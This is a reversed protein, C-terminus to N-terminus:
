DINLFPGEIPIVHCCDHGVLLDLTYAEGTNLEGTLQLPTGEKKIGGMRGDDIVLYEGEPMLHYLHNYRYISDNDLNRVEYDTLIIPEEGEFLKVSLIVFQETCILNGTCDSPENSDECSLALGFILFIPLLKKM